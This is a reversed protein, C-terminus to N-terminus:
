ANEGNGKKSMKDEYVMNVATVIDSINLEHMKDKVQNGLEIIKSIDEASTNKDNLWSAEIQKQIQETELQEKTQVLKKKEKELEKIEAKLKVIDVNKKSIKEDTKEIQTQVSRLTLKKEKEAM